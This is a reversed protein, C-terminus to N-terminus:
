VFFARNGRSFVGKLSGTLSHYSYSTFNPFAAQFLFTHTLNSSADSGVRVALPLTLIMPMKWFSQMFGLGPMEELALEDWEQTLADVGFLRKSYSLGQTHFNRFSFRLLWMEYLRLPGLIQNCITKSLCVFVCVCVCAHVCVSNGNRSAWGLLEGNGAEGLIGHLPKLVDQCFDM